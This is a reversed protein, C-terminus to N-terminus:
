PEGERDRPRLVTDLASGGGIGRLRVREEEWIGYCIRHLRVSVANAFEVEYEADTSIPEGCAACRAGNGACAWVKTVTACPLSGAALKARIVAAVDAGGSVARAATRARHMWCNGHLMADGDRRIPDHPLIPQACVPCQVEPCAVHEVRGDARFSIM